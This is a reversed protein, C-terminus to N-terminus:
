VEYYTTNKEIWNVSWAISATSGVTTTTAVIAFEQNETILLGLLEADINSPTSGQSNVGHSTTAYSYLTIKPLGGTYSTATKNIELGSGSNIDSWSGGTSTIGGVMQITVLTDESPNFVTFQFLSLSALINKVTDKSRFCALIKTTNSVGTTINSGVTIPYSYPKLRGDIIM